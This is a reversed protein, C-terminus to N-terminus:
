PTVLESSFSDMLQIFMDVLIFWAYDLVFTLESKLLELYSVIVLFKEKIQEVGEL